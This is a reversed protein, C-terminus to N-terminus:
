LLKVATGQITEISIPGFYRSDFSHKALSRMHGSGFVWYMGEPLTQQYGMCSLGTAASCTTQNILVGNVVVGAALVQVHDGPVAIIEKLFPLAGSSCSDGKPLNVEKPLIEKPLCFIM